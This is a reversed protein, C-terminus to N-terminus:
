PGSRSRGCRADLVAVAGLAADPDDPEGLLHAVPKGGGVHQHVRGAPQRDELRRDAAARRDGVAPPAAVDARVVLREAPVAQRLHDPPAVLEPDRDRPRERPAATPRQRDHLQRGRRGSTRARTSHPEVPEHGRRRRVHRPQRPAEPDLSGDRRACDREREVVARMGLGRRGHELQEGPVAGGGGEEEDALLDLPAGLQGARDELGTVLDREVPVPM